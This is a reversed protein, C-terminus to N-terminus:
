SQQPMPVATLLKLRFVSGEAEETGEEKEYVFRSWGNAPRLQHAGTLHRSLNNGRNYAKSCLHCAFVIQENLHALRIHRNLSYYNRFTQECVKCVNEGSATGQEANAGAGSNNPEGNLDGHDHAALEHRRLSYKTKFPSGCVTCVYDRRESHRFQEHEKLRAPYPAAYPCKKCRYRRVHKNVHERLLSKTVFSKPCLTCQHKLHPHPPQHHLRLDSGGGEEETVLMPPAQTIVSKRNDCNSNPMYLQNEDEEDEEEDEKGEDEDDDDITLLGELQEEDVHQQHGRNPHKKSGSAAAAAVAAKLCSNNVSTPTEQRYCHNLFGTKTCFALGCVPCAILKKQTHSMLHSKLHSKSKFSAECNCWECKAFKEEKLKEKSMVPIAVDEMAHTDVHMTFLLYDFFEGGCGRWGCLLVNSLDAIVNRSTSDQYCRLTPQTSSMIKYGNHMIQHHYAHISLHLQLHQQQEFKWGDCGEWRCTSATVGEEEDEEDDDRRGGGGFAAVHLRSIHLLFSDRDEFREGCDEWECTLQACPSLITTPTTTTM